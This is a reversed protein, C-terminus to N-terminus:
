GGDTWPFRKHLRAVNRVADPDLGKKAFHEVVEDIGHRASGHNPGLWKVPEDMWSTIDRLAGETLEAAGGNQASTRLLQKLGALGEHGRVHSTTTPFAHAEGALGAIAAIVFLVVVTSIRNM